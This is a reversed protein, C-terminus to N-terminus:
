FRTLLKLIEDECKKRNEPSLSRLRSEVFLALTHASDNLMESPPSPAPESQCFQKLADVAEEMLTFSKKTKSGRKSFLQEESPRKNTAATVPNTQQPSFQTTSNSAPTSASRPLSQSSSCMESPPASNVSTIPEFENYSSSHDSFQSDTEISAEHSILMYKQFFNCICLILKQITM